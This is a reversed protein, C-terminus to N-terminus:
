SPDDATEKVSSTKSREFLAKFVMALGVIIIAYPWSTDWYLGWVGLVNALTWVGILTLLLGGSRGDAEPPM